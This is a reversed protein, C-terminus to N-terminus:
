EDSYEIIGWLMLQIYIGVFVYLWFTEFDCYTKKYEKKIFDEVDEGNKICEKLLEDGVINEICQLNTALPYLKKLTEENYEHLTGKMFSYAALFEETTYNKHIKLLEKYRAHKLLLCPIGFVVIPNKLILFFNDFAPIKLSLLSGMLFFVFYTIFFTPLIGHKSLLNEIFDKM